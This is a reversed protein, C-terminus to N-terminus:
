TMNLVLLDLVKKCTSIHRALPKLTDLDVKCCDM